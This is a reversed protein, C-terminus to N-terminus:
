VIREGDSTEREEECARVVNGHEDRDDAIKYFDYTIDRIYGDTRHANLLSALVKMVNALEEEMVTRRCTALMKDFSPKGTESDVMGAEDFGGAVREPTVGKAYLTPVSVLFSLLLDLKKAKLRLVGSDSLSKFSAALRTRLAGTVGAPILGQKELANLVRFIVSLDCPQQTGTAAAHHKNTVIKLIAEAEQTLEPIIAALQDRAGDLWSVATLKALVAEGPKLGFM